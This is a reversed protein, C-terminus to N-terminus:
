IMHAPWNMVEMKQEHFWEKTGKSRLCPANDQQFTCDSHLSYLDVSPIPANELIDIYSDTELNGYVEWMLGRWELLLMGSGLITYDACYFANLPFYILCFSLFGFFTSYDYWDPIQM